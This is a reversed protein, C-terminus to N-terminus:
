GNPIKDVLTFLQRGVTWLTIDDNDDYVGVLFHACAKKGAYKEPDNFAYFLLQASSTM